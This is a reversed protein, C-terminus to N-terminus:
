SLRCLCSASGDIHETVLGYSLEGSLVSENYFIPSRSADVGDRGGPYDRHGAM